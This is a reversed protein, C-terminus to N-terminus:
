RRLVPVLSSPNPAALLSGDSGCRDPQHAGKSRLSTGRGDSQVVVFGLEALRSIEAWDAQFQTPAHAAHPGAYVREIVPYRISAIATEIAVGTFQHANSSKSRDRGARFLDRDNQHAPHHSRLSLPPLPPICSPMPPLPASKKGRVAHTPLFITGYIPTVGDAGAARLRIPPRWGRGLLRSHDARSLERVVTGDATCRLRCVAPSGVSSASELAFSCLGVPEVDAGPSPQGRGRGVDAGPSPKIRM